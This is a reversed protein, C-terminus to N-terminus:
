KKGEIYKCVCKDVLDEQLKNLSFVQYSYKQTAYEKGHVILHTGQKNFGIWRPKVSLPFLERKNEGVNIIGEKHKDENRKLDFSRIELVPIKENENKKYYCLAMTKDSLAICKYEAPEVAGRYFSLNSNELKMISVEYKHSDNEFCQLYFTTSLDDSGSQLIKEDTYLDLEQKKGLTRKIFEKETESNEMAHM